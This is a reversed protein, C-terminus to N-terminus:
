GGQGIAVRGVDFGDDVFKGRQTRVGSAVMQDEPYDLQPKEFFGFRKMYEVLTGTGIREGVQAWYTNM